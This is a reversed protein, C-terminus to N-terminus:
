RDSRCYICNQAARQLNKILVQVFIITLFSIWRNFFYYEMWSAGKPNWWLFDRVIIKNADLSYNYTKFM